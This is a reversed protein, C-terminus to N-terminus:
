NMFVGTKWPPSRRIFDQNSLEIHDKLIFNKRPKFLEDGLASTQSEEQLTICKLQHKLRAKSKIRPPSSLNSQPKTSPNIKLKQSNLPNKVGGLPFTAKAEPLMTCKSPLFEM